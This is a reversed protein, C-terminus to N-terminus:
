RPNPNIDKSEAFLYINCDEESIYSVLRHCRFPIYWTDSSIVLMFFLVPYNSVSGRMEEATKRATGM